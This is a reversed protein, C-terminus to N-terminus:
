KKKAASKGLLDDLAGSTYGFYAVLGVVAAGLLALAVPSAGAPKDAGAAAGAAAAPAADGAAATAPAAAKKTKRPPLSDKRNLTQCLLVFERADIRGDGDLDVRALIDAWQADSLKMAAQLGGLESADLVGSKDKDWLSFVGSVDSKLVKSMVIYESFTMVDGAAFYDILSAAQTESLANAAALESVSLAGDGDTDAAKFAAELSAMSTAAAM